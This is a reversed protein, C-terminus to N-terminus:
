AYFKHQNIKYEADSKMWPTSWLERARGSDKLDYKGSHNGEGCSLECGPDSVIWKRETNISRYNREKM